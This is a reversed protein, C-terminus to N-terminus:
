YGHVCCMVSIDYSMYVKYVDDTQRLKLLTILAYESAAKVASNKEKAGNILIPIWVKADSEEICGGSENAVRSVADVM